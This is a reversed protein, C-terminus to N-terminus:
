PLGGGGLQELQGPSAATASRSTAIRATVTPVVITPITAPGGSLARGSLRWGERTGDVLARVHRRLMPLCLLLRCQLLDRQLLLQHLQRQQKLRLKLRLELRLKLRLELRLSSGTTHVRHSELPEKLTLAVVEEATGAVIDIHAAADIGFQKAGHKNQLLLLFLLLLKDLLLLQEPQEKRLLPILGVLELRLPQKQWLALYLRLRLCLCLDLRLRLSLLELLEDGLSCVRVTLIQSLIEQGGEDAGSRSLGRHRADIERGGETGICSVGDRAFRRGRRVGTSGGSSGGLHELPRHALASRGTVLGAKSGGGGGGCWRLGRCRFM